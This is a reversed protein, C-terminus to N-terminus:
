FRVKGYGLSGLLRDAVFEIYQAMVQANMGILSCPLAQSPLYICACPHTPISTVPHTPTERCCPPRSSVLFLFM